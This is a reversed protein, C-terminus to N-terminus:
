NGEMYGALYIRGDAINDSAAGYYITPAIEYFTKFADCTIARFNSETQTDEIIFYCTAGEYKEPIQYGYETMGFSRYPDSFLYNNFKAIEVDNTGDVYKMLKLKLGATKNGGLKFTIWRTGGVKFVQSYIKGTYDENGYGDLFYTGEKNYIPINDPFFDEFYTERSSIVYAGVGAADTFWGTMDGTEFGGNRIEHTVNDLGLKDSINELPKNIYGAEYINKDDSLKPSDANNTIVIPNGMFITPATEYYTKVEDLSIAGFAISNNAKDVLKLYCYKGLYEEPIQYGYNSMGISRYPDSFLYNNFQAILTDEGDVNYCYLELAIAQNNTGGMKFTIWRTGGVIFAQSYFSGIANLGAEAEGFKFGTLFYEGTANYIPPNLPYYQEFLTGDSTVVYSEELDYTFWGTTDGTEFGGNRIENTADELGLKEGIGTPIVECYSAYFCDVGDVLPENGVEYYTIIEDITIAGFPTDSTAYDNIVFYLIDGFYEEPIQYAYKTMAFSRYPDSFLNNNFKALEIDESDDVYKMLSVYLNDTKNGGIKITIWGSGDVIFAESTLTGQFDYNTETTLFYTGVKNYTPINDPFFQEFFTEATSLTFGDDGSWGSLTGTEFGGNKLNNTANDLNLKEKLINGTYNALFINERDVNPEKGVPYYTVFNDATFARFNGSLANDVFRFYCKKGVFEESIQYAYTTLGISREPDKFMYNNFVEIVTDEEDCILELRLSKQKGGGLQFTIWRSGGVVFKSSTLTGINGESSFNNAQNYGDLYYNGTHNTTPTPDLFNFYEKNDAIVFGIEESATWGTLDGTEFGGNIIYYISSDTVNIKGRIEFLETAGKSVKLTFTKEGVTSVTVQVKNNKIPGFTVGESSAILEFHVDEVTVNKVFDTLTYIVDQPGYVLNEGLLDVTRDDFDKIKEVIIEDVPEEQQEKCATFIMGMFVFVLILLIRTVFKKM